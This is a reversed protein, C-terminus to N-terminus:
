GENKILNIESVYLNKTCDRIIYEAGDVNLFRGEDLNSPLDETKALIVVVSEQFKDKTSSDEIKIATIEKNEIIHIEAFEEINFFIDLDKKAQDKFM